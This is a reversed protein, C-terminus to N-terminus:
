ELMKKAAEKGVLSGIAVGMGGMRVATYMNDNIRRIIPSKVKGVGLIGSWSSAIPFEALMITSQAYDILRNTIQEDVQYSDTQSSKMDWHRGGGILIRNKVNRFYIYGEEAHFTGNLKLNPIPQSIIVQNRAPVVDLDPMLREAFGNVAFLVKKTKLNIGNEINLGLGTGEDEWGLLNLGRYISIGSEECLSIYRSIMKGPHLQGEFKNEIVKINSQLGLSSGDSKKRFVNQEGVIPKLLKNFYEINNQALEYQSAQDPTFIEFGGCAKYDMNHDGIKSRLENLGLWRQEVLQLTADEGMSKVDAMLETISGFCAFGANRTSAGQPFLERDIVLVKEVPRDKKYNLAASLGVIGAGVVILDWTPHFSDKEWYSLQNLSHKAMTGKM